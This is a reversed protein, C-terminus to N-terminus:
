WDWFWSKTKSGDINQELKPKPEDEKDQMAVENVLHKEPQTPKVSLTPSQARGREADAIKRHEPKSRASAELDDPQEVKSTQSPRPQTRPMYEVREETKTVHTEGDEGITKWVTKTTRTGDPTISTETTKISGRTKSEISHKSLESSPRTKSPQSPPTFDLWQRLEDHLPTTDTSATTTTHAQLRPPQPQNSSEEPEHPPNEQSTPAKPAKTKRLEKKPEDLQQMSLLKGADNDGNWDIDLQGLLQQIPHKETNGYDPQTVVGIDPTHLGLMRWVWMPSISTSILKRDQLGELWDTTSRHRRKWWPLTPRAPLSEGKSALLLDEFADCWNKTPVERTFKAREELRLPSYQGSLFYSSDPWTQAHINDSGDSLPHEFFMAIIDLPHFGPQLAPNWRQYHGRTKSDDKGDAQGGQVTQTVSHKPDERRVQTTHAHMAALDDSAPHELFMALIDLPHFPLQRTTNSREIRGRRKSNDRSNDERVKVAQTVGHTSQTMHAHMAALDDVPPHELFMALIGLPHSPPPRTTNWKETGITKSDDKGDDQGGAVAQTV